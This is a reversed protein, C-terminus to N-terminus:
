MPIEIKQLKYGDVDKRGDLNFQSNKDVFEQRAYSVKLKSM